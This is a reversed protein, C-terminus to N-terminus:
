LITLDRTVSFNPWAWELSLCLNLEQQMGPVRCPAPASSVPQSASAPGRKHPKCCLHRFWITPLAEDGDCTHRSLGHAQLRSRGWLLGKPGAMEHQASSTLSWLKNARIYKFFVYVSIGRVLQCQIKEEPFPVFWSLGVTGPLDQQFHFFSDSLLLLSCIVPLQHASCVVWTIAVVKWFKCHRDIMQKTIPPKCVITKSKIM